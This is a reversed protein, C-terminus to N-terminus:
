YIIETANLGLHIKSGFKSKFYKAVRTQFFMSIINNTCCSHEVPQM